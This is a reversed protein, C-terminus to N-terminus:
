LEEIEEEFDLDDDGCYCIPECGCDDGFCDCCDDAGTEFTIKFYKKFLSYLVAVVAGITVIAGVVIFLAKLADSSRKECNNNM